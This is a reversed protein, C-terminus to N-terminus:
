SYSVKRLHMDFSRMTQYNPDYFRDQFPVPMELGNRLHRLRISNGLYHTHPLGAFVRIGDEPLIQFSRRSNLFKIPYYM